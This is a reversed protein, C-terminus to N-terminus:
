SSICTMRLSMKLNRDIKNKNLFNIYNNIESIYNNDYILKYLLKQIKGVLKTNIKFRDFNIRFFKIYMDLNYLIATKVLFYSFVSTSQSFLYKKEKPNFFDNANRYGFHTLIKAVQFLSYKRELDLYEIFKDFGLNNEISCLICNVIVASIETIAENILIRTSDSVDSRQKIKNVLDGYELFKSDLDLNHYTEHLLLKTLEEDRWIDITDPYGGSSGSNIEKPGLKIYNDPIQKKFPTIWLNINMSKELNNITSFIMSRKLIKPYKQELNYTHNCNFTLKSIINNHKIKFTYSKDIYKQCYDQIDLSIFQNFINVNITKFENLIDIPFRSQSLKQSLVSILKTGHINFWIICNSFNISDINKIFFIIKNKEDNSSCIETIIKELLEPYKQNLRIILLILLSKSKENNITINNEVMDLIKIDQNLYSERVINYYYKYLKNDLKKIKKNGLLKIIDKTFKEIM